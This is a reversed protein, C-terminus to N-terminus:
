TYLNAGCWRSSTDHFVFPAEQRQLIAIEQCRAERRKSEARHLRREHCRKHQQATPSASLRLEGGLFGQSLAATVPVQDEVGGLCQRPILYVEQHKKKGRPAVAGYSCLLFRVTYSLFPRRSSSLRARKVCDDLEM